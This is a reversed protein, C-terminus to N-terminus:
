DQVVVVCAPVVVWSEDALSGRVLACAGLYVVTSIGGGAGLGAALAVAAARSLSFCFRVSPCDRYSCEVRSVVCAACGAGPFGALVDEVRLQGGAGARLDVLAVAFHLRRVVGVALPQVRLACCGAGSVAGGCEVGLLCGMVVVAGALSVTRSAMASIRRIMASSFMSCKEFSSSSSAQMSRTWASSVALSFSRAAAGAPGM